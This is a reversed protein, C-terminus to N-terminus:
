TQPKQSESKARCAAMFQDFEAKDEAMRLRSLFEAFESQEEELRRLTAARYAEFAQNGSTRTYRESNQVLGIADERGRGFGTGCCNM